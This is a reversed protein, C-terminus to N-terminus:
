QIHFEELPVDARAKSLFLIFYAFSLKRVNSTRLILIMILSFPSVLALVSWCFRFVVLRRIRVRKGSSGCMQGGIVYQSVYITRLKLQIFSCEYCGRPSFQKLLGCFLEEYRHAPLRM